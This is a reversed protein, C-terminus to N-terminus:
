HGSMPVLQMDGGNLHALKNIRNSYNKKILIQCLGCKLFGFYSKSMKQCKELNKDKIMKDNIM